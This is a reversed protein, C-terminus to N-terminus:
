DRDNDMDVVNFKTDFKIEWHNSLKIEYGYKDKEVRLVKAEPYNAKVYEKIKEPIIAEPVGTTSCKVETWEGKKNFEIRDGNNFMVEYSTDFWEAEMKVMAVKGEPFHQKVFAQAKEPLQEFAIAKDDDAFAFQFTFVCALLFMLKKMAENM